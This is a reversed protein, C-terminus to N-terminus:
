CYQTKMHQQIHLRSPAHTRLHRLCHGRPRVRVVWHGSRAHWPWAHRQGAAQWVAVCRRGVVEAADAAAGHTAPTARSATFIADAWVAVSDWNDSPNPGLAQTELSLILHTRCHYGILLKSHKSHARPAWTPTTCHQAAAHGDVSYTNAKKARSDTSCHSPLTVMHMHLM